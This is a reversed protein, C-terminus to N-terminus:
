DRLNTLRVVVHSSIWPALRDGVGPEGYERYVLECIANWCDEPMDSEPGERNSDVLLFVDSWEDPPLGKGRWTAVRNEPADLWAIFDEREFLERADVVLGVTRASAELRLTM